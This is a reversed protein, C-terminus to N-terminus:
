VAFDFVKPQQTKFEVECVCVEPSSPNKDYGDRIHMSYM